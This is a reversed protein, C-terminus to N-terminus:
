NFTATLTVSSQVSGPNGASNIAAWLNLPVTATGGPNATVNFFTDGACIATALDSAWFLTISAGQAASSTAINAASCQGGFGTVSGGQFSVSMKVQTYTSTSSTNPCQITVNFPTKTSAVVGKDKTKAQPLSLSSPMSISCTPTVPTVVVPNGILTINCCDNFRASSEGAHVKFLDAPSVSVQQKVGGFGGVTTITIPIRLSPIVLNTNGGWVEWMLTSPNLILPSYSNNALNTTWPSGWKYNGSPGQFSQSWGTFNPNITPRGNFKVVVAGGMGWFTTFNPSLGDGFTYLCSDGGSPGSYGYLRLVLTANVSFDGGSKVLINNSTIDSFFSDTYCYTAKAEHSVLSFLLMLTLQIIRMFAATNMGKMAPISHKM